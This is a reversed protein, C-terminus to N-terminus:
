WGENYNVEMLKRHTQECLAMIQLYEECTLEKDYYSVYEIVALIGDGSRLGYNLCANCRGVYFDYKIKM